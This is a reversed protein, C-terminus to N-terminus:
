RGGRGLIDHHEEFHGRVDRGLCGEYGKYTEIHEIDETGVRYLTGVGTMGTDECSILLVRNIHKHGIQKAIRKIFDHCKHSNAIGREGFNATHDPYGALGEYGQEDLFEDILDGSDYEIAEQLEDIRKKAKEIDDQTITEPKNTLISQTAEELQRQIEQLKDENDLANPSPEITTWTWGSM